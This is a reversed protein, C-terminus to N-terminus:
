SDDMGPKDDFRQQMVQDIHAWNYVDTANGARLQVHGADPTSFYLGATLGLQQALDAYTRYCPDGGNEVMKGNRYCYCDAAEGWQHWGAGPLANTQWKPQRPVDRLSKLLNSLWAAGQDKLMKAKGDIFAPTRQAWQCYYLAQRRPTRLGQSIRFDHGRGRCADLLATLKAAFQPDLGFGALSPDPAPPAGPPMAPQAPTGPVFAACAGSWIYSNEDLRYWHANGQVAEGIVLAVVPITTGAALKRLVPANTNPAGQRVNAKATVQVNGIIALGVTGPM